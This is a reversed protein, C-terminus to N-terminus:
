YEFNKFKEWQKKAYELFSAPADNFAKDVKYDGGGNISKIYTYGRLAYKNKNEHMMLKLDDPTVDSKCSLNYMFTSEAIGDGDLDTISLSEPVYSLALDFDCDNVFDQIKWLEDGSGDKMIYHYAYLEKSLLHGYPGPKEDVSTETVLVVNEGNADTWTAGAVPTGKYDKVSSPISSVGYKLDKIDDTTGSPAENGAATNSPNNADTNQETTESTTNEQPKEKDLCATFAVALTFVIIISFIKRM